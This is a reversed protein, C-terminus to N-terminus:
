VLMTLVYLNIGKRKGQMDMCIIVWVTKSYQWVM